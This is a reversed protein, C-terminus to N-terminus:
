QLIDKIKMQDCTLDEDSLIKGNYAGSLMGCCECYEYGFRNKWEHTAYKDPSIEFKCFENLIMDATYEINM